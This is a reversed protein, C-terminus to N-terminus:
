AKPSQDLLTLRSADPMALLAAQAETPINFGLVMGGGAALATTIFSRRSLDLKSM